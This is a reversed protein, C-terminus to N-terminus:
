RLPPPDEQSVLVYAVEGQRRVTRVVWRPDPPVVADGPTKLVVLGEPALQAVARELFPVIGPAGEWADFPPDLFVLDYPGPPWGGRRADARVVAVESALGRHDVWRKLAGLPAPDVDVLVVRSAGRSLAELGLGGVGACLDLVAAGAVWPEIVTFLSQRLRAPVPRVGPGAPPLEAHKFRGAGIRMGPAYAVGAPRPLAAAAGTRRSM